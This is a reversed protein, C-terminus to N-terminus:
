ATRVLEALAGVVADIEDETNFYHPSIRLAGDVEKHDYDIVADTRQQGTTNIGRARLERVLESKQIM